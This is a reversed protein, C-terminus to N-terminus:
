QGARVPWVYNEGVKVNDSDAGTSMLVIKGFFPWALASNSTSSWYDDSEVGSFPGPTDSRIQDTGHTLAKLEEITPLRWDGLVSGDNLDGPKGSMTSSLIGARTHADDYYVPNYGAGDVSNGDVRWAKKGGWGADKLWVLGKGRGNHGFLDTVTGDSNDCWRGNPNVETNSWRTGSCPIADPDLTGTVEAGDVWAKKGARIDGAAADGSSTNVVNPDGTVSFITVGSHINGSVLGADGAVTGTGDHYGQTITRASTGPTINQQGVNAMTGSLGVGGANSFTKGTLVDAAVANGSPVDATGTIGFIVVDKKINGAVLDADVTSLNFAEYIGAPQEVTTNTPTQAALTGTQLGWGGGSLLGWFTKGALVNAVGAGAADDVAPAKGMVEDLTKGTGAVPGAGPEVFAGDRKSGAAGSDLRNFIDELTFMASDPSAPAAPPALDGALVSAAPFLILALFFLATLVLFLSKKM